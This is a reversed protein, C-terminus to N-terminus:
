KKHTKYQSKILMLYKELIITWLKSINGGSKYSKEVVKKILIKNCYVCLIVLFRDWFSNDSLVYHYNILAVYPLYY